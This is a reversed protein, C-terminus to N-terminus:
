GSEHDNGARAIPARTIQASVVKWEDDSRVYVDIYRSIGRMGTKKTWSGLARVLAVDGYFKVDVDVLKYEELDSCGRATLRLFAKKDLMSADSEICVFEDALHMRYWDVDGALSAAVYKENMRQLHQEHHMAM